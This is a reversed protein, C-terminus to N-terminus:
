FDVKCHDELSVEAAAPLGSYFICYNVCFTTNEIVEIKANKLETKSGPDKQVPFKNSKPDRSKETLCVPFIDVFKGFKALYKNIIM